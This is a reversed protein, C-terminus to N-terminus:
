TVLVRSIAERPENPSTTELSACFAQNTRPLQGKPDSATGPIRLHLSVAAANLRCCRAVKSQQPCLHHTASKTHANHAPPPHCRKHAPPVKQTRRFSTTPHSLPAFHHPDRATRTVSAELGTVWVAKSDLRLRKVRKQRPFADTRLAGSQRSMSVQRWVLHSRAPHIVRASCPKRVSTPLGFATSAVKRAVM